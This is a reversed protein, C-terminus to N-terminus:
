SLYSIRFLSAGKFFELMDHYSYGKAYLAGVLAGSSVGSIYAPEIARERLAELLAIHAVGRVGGGSLVVGVESGLKQRIM